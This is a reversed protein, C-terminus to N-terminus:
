QEKNNLFEERNVFHYNINNIEGEQPPRSTCSVIEASNPFLPILKKLLTDKGTGSKGCIAIIKIVKWEREKM